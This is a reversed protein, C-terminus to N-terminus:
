IRLLAVEDRLVVSSRDVPRAEHVDGYEIRSDTGRALVPAPTEYIVEIMWVDQYYPWLSEMDTLAVDMKHLTRGKNVKHELPQGTQSVLFHLRLLLENDIRAYQLEEDPLSANDDHAVFLIGSILPLRYMGPNFLTNKETKIYYLQELKMGYM